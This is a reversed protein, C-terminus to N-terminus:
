LCLYLSFYYRPMHIPLRINLSECTPFMTKHLEPSGLSFRVQEFEEQHTQKAGLHRENPFLTVFDKPVYQLTLHLPSHGPSFSCMISIHFCLVPRHWAKRRKYPVGSDVQFTDPFPNFPLSFRHAPNGWTLESPSRVTISLAVLLIWFM